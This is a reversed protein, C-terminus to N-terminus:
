GAVWTELGFCNNNLFDKLILSFDQFLFKCDYDVRAGIIQYHFPILITVFLEGKQETNEEAPLPM